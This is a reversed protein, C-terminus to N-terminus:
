TSSKCKMRNTGTVAPASTPEAIAGGTSVTPIFRTVNVSLEVLLKLDSARQQIRIMAPNNCLYGDNFYGFNWLDPRDKTATAFITYVPSVICREKGDAAKKVANDFLAYRLIRAHVIYNKGSIFTVIFVVIKLGPYPVNEAREFVIKITRAPTPEVEDTYFNWGLDQFGMGFLTRSQRPRFFSGLRIGNEEADRLFSFDFTAPPQGYEQILTRIDRKKALEERILVIKSLDNEQEDDSDTESESM